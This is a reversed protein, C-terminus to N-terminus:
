VEQKPTVKPNPNPLNPNIAPNANPGRIKKFGGPAPFNPNMDIPQEEEEKGWELEVDADVIKKFIQEEIVKELFSQHSKARRNFAEMQVNAIGEPVNARGLLVAPVQLAYIINNEYHELFPQIDLLKGRTSLVDIDVLHTTVLENKNTLDVLENAVATVDSATAPYLDNGLKVHWPSNARRDVINKMAEQLKLFQELLSVKKSGFLTRLSSTGYVQDGIQNIPFHVIEDVTFQVPKDKGFYQSYGTIEGHKDRKIYIYKPDLIKLELSEGTGIIEAFASGFTLQNRVVIRLFTEIDVRKMFDEIKEQAAADESTVYVGEGLIFDVTKDIAGAVIPVALYANEYLQFNFPHDEGVDKSIKVTPADLIISKGLETISKKSPEVWIYNKNGEKVEPKARFRDLIGM